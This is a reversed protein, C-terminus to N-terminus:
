WLFRRVLEHASSGRLRTGPTRLFVRPLSFELPFRSGAPTFCRAAVVSRCRACAGSPSAEPDPATPSVRGCSFPALTSLPVASSSGTSGTAPPFGQLPFRTRPQPIFCARAARAPAFRRSRAFRQPRLRRRCHSYGAGSQARECRSPPSSGWPLREARTRTSCTVLALHESSAAFSVLPHVRSRFHVPAPAIRFV